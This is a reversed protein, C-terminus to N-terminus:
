LEEDDGGFRCREQVAFVGVEAFHRIAHIDDVFYFFDVGVFVVVGFFVDGDVAYLEHLFLCARM